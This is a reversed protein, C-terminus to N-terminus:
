SHLRTRLHHSLFSLRGPPFPGPHGSLYPARSCSALAPAQEKTYSVSWLDAGQLYRTQNEENGLRGKHYFQIQVGIYIDFGIRDIYLVFHMGTDNMMDHEMRQTGPEHLKGRDRSAIVWYIHRVQKKRTTWDVGWMSLCRM